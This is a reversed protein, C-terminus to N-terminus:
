VLLYTSFVVDRLLRWHSLVLVSADPDIARRPPLKVLRMAAGEFLAPYKLLVNVMDSSSNSSDAGETNFARKDELSFGNPGESLAFFAIWSAM